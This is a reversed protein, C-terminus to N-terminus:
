IHDVRLIYRVLRTVTVALWTVDDVEKNKKVRFLRPGNMVRDTM